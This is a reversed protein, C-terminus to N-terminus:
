NSSTSTAEKYNDWVRDTARNAARVVLGAKKQMLRDFRGCEKDFVNQAEIFKARNSEFDNRLKRSREIADKFDRKSESLTKEANGLGESLRTISVEYGKVLARQSEVELRMDMYKYVLYGGGSISILTISLYMAMKTSLGGFVSKLLDPILAILFSM